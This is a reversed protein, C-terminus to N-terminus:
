VVEHLKHDRAQLLFFVSGGFRLFFAHFDQQKPIGLLVLSFLTTPQIGNSFVFVLETAFDECSKFPSPKKRCFVIRVKLM